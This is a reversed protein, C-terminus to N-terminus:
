KITITKEETGGLKVIVVGDGSFDVNDIEKECYVNLVYDNDFEFSARGSVDSKKSVDITSNSPKSYIRITADSVVVYDNDVVTIVVTAPDPKRCGSLFIILTLFLLIYVIYRNM